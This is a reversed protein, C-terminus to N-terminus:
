DNTKGNLIDFYTTYSPFVSSERRTDGVRLEQRINPTIGFFSVRKPTEKKPAVSLLQVQMPNVVLDKTKRTQWNRWPRMDNLQM